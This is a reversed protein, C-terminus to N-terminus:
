RHDYDVNCSTEKVEAARLTARGVNHEYWPATTRLRDKMRGQVCVRVDEPLSKTAAFADSSLFGMYWQDIKGTQQFFEVNRQAVYSEPNFIALGLMGLAGVAVVATPLWRASMRIGAVLILVLVLGLGVEIWRVLLREVSFGYAKEYLSMRHIASAVIVLTTLCLGGILVRLFLRDRADERGAVRIAVAIVGMVLITVFLLQWFGQRAYEAYTLGETVQVHEDGGFLVSIQVGVFAIFLLNLAALPLSWEWRPLKKPETPALRDFSPPKSLVYIAGLAFGGVLVGVVVRGVVDGFSVFPLVGSILARFRADADALLAGFAAVLGLTILVVIAARDPSIKRGRSMTRTGRRMWGAVRFPARLMVFQGYVLGTWTRAPALVYVFLALSTLVCLAVLWGADRVTPVVALCLALVLAGIRTPTWQVKQTAFAALAVAFATLTWGLGPLSSRWCLAAVLGAGIGSLLAGQTMKSRIDRPWATLFRTPPGFIPVPPRPVPPGAPAGPVAAGPIPYPQPPVVSGTTM